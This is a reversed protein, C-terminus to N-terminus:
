YEYDMAGGSLGGRLNHVGSKRLERKKQEVQMELRQVQYELRGKKERIRRLREKLDKQSGGAGPTGARRGRGVGGGVSSRIQGDMKKRAADIRGALLEERSRLVQERKDMKQIENEVRRILTEFEPILSNLISNQASVLETESILTYPRHVSLVKSLRPLDSTATTLSTLTESLLSVSNSLSYVATSLPSLTSETGTDYSM